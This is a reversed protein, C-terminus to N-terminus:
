DGVARIVRKISPDVEFWMEAPYNPNAVIRWLNTNRDHIAINQPVNLNQTAYWNRVVQIMEQDFNLKPEITRLDNTVLVAKQSEAFSPQRVDNTHLIIKTSANQLPREQTVEEAHRGSESKTCGVVAVFPLLTAFILRRVRYSFRMFPDGIRSTSMNESKNIEKKGSIRNQSLLHNWM